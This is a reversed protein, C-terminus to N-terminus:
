SIYCFIRTGFKHWVVLLVCLFSRIVCRKAAKKITVDKIMIFELFALDSVFKPNWTFTLVVLLSMVRMAAIFLGLFIISNRLFWTLINHAEDVLIHLFWRLCFTLCFEPYRVYFKPELTPDSGLLFKFNNLPTRCRYLNM